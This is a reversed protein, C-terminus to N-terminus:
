IFNQVIAECYGAEEEQLEAAMAAGGWVALVSKMVARAEEAPPIPPPAKLRERKKRATSTLDEFRICEFELDVGKFGARTCALILQDDPVIGRGTAVVWCCFLLTRSSLKRMRSLEVVASGFAPSQEFKERCYEPYTQQEEFGGGDPSSIRSILGV